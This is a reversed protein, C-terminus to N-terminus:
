HLIDSIFLDRSSGFFFFSPHINFNCVVVIGRCSMVLSNLEIEPILEAFFFCMSNTVSKDTLILM